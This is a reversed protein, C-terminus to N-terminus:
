KVQVLGTKTVTSSGAANSVTLSVTYSGRAAYTHQPNQATSTTGDGFRWLWSTPTGASTDTFSVKLPRKGSTRNVTFSATPAIASDALSVDSHWYQGTTNNSALVVLGTSGSVPAKGATPNNMNDSAADYLLVTGRGSPFSPATMSATKEYVTGAFGSYPCGTTAGTAIVHVLQHQEDLVVIPRTHCDAVTSVPTSSWAGSAARTLLLTQAASQVGSLDASTKVGAYVRGSSDAKLNLHDDAVNSGQAAVVTPQWTGVPESNRHEAFLFAGTAQNSWMVGVSSGFAVVASIDDATMASGTPDSLATPASWTAGDDVSVSTWPQQQQTWSAWLRGTADRDVTLTESSTGNITSPSGSDPLYRQTASDYTYRFLLAPVGPSGATNSSAFVHSAVYLRNGVALVDARSTPRADLATGTDTWSQTARDLRFIGYGGSPAQMSAWWSGANFWLKSEPKEGTPTGGTGTYMQDAHGVDGPTASAPTALGAGALLGAAVLAGVVGLRTTLGVM